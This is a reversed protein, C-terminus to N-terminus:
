SHAYSVEFDSTKGSQEEPCEKQDSDIHVKIWEGRALSTRRIAHPRTMILSLESQSLWSHSAVSFRSGSDIASFPIPTCVLLIISSTTRTRATVHGLVSKRSRACTRAKLRWM